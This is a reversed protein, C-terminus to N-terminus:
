RGVPDAQLPAGEFAHGEGEIIALGGPVVDALPVERFKGDVGDGITPDAHHQTPGSDGALGVSHYILAIERVRSPVLNAPGNRGVVRSDGPGVTRGVKIVLAEISNHLSQRLKSPLRPKSIDLTPTTM